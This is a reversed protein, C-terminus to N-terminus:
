EISSTDLLFHLFISMYDIVIVVIDIQRKPGQSNAPVSYWPGDRWLSSSTMFSLESKSYHVHSFSMDLFIFRKKHNHIIKEGYCQPNFKSSLYWQFLIKLVCRLLDSPGNERRNQIKLHSLSLFCSPMLMPFSIERVEYTWQELPIHNLDIKSPVLTLTPFM